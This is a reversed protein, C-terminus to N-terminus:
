EIKSLTLDLSNASLNSSIAGFHVLEQAQDEKLKLRADKANFSYTCM